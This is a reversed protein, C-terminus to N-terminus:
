STELAGAFASGSTVALALGIEITSRRTCYAKSFQAPLLPGPIRPSPAM